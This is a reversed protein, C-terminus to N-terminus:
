SHNAVFSPFCGPVGLRAELLRLLESYEYVSGMNAARRTGESHNELSKARECEDKGSQIGNWRTQGIMRIMAPTNLEMANKVEMNPSKAMGCSKGFAGEDAMLLAKGITNGSITSV